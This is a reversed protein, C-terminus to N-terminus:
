VKPPPSASKKGSTELKRLESWVRFYIDARSVGDKVEVEHKFKDYSITRAMQDLYKGWVQRTTSVQFPYDANPTEIVQSQLNM